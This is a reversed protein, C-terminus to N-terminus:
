QFNQDIITNLIVSLSRNKINIKELEFSDFFFKKILLEPKLVNFGNIDIINNEKIFARTINFSYSNNSNIFNLRRMHVIDNDSRVWNDFSRDELTKIGRRNSTAFDFDVLFEISPNFPLNHIENPLYKCCLLLVATEGTIIYDYKKNILEKIDLLNELFEDM